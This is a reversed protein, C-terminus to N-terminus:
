ISGSYYTAFALREPNLHMTSSVNEILYLQSGGFPTISDSDGNWALFLQELKNEEEIIGRNDCWCFYNSCLGFSRNFDINDPAGRYTWHLYEKLFQKINSDVEIMM